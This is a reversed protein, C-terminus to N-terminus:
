RANSQKFRFDCHTCGNAITGQRQLDIGMSPFMLYDILCMYPTFEDADQSHFFKVVGCELYNIGWEYDGGLSEVVEFVFNGPYQREQSIQAKKRTRRRWLHTMYFKGILRRAFAPYHDAWAQAMRHVLNGIADVPIDHRKMVQYLALLTTMQELTDTLSNDKGGIYPIAPILDQFASRTEAVITQTLTEGYQDRLMDEGLAIMKDHQKLLTKKRSIYYDAGVLQVREMSIQEM